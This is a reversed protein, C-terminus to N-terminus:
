HRLSFSSSVLLLANPAQRRKKDEAFLAASGRPSVYLYALSWRRDGHRAMTSSSGVRFPVGQRVGFVAGAEVAEGIGRLALFARRVYEIGEAGVQLFVRCSDL